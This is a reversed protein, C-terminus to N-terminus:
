NVVKKALMAFINQESGSSIASYLFVYKASYSHIGGYYELLSAVSRIKISLSEATVSSLLSM